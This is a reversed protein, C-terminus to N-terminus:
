ETWGDFIGLESTCYDKEVGEGSRKASKRSRPPSPPEGTDQLTIKLGRVVLSLEGIRLCWSSGRTASSLSSAAVAKGAPTISFTSVLSARLSSQHPASLCDVAPRAGDSTALRPVVTELGGGGLLRVRGDLLGRGGTM